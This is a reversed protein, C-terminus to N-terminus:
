GPWPMRASSDPRVWPAFSLSYTQIMSGSSPVVLKMWPRGIYQTDIAGHTRGSEDALIGHGPYAGLLTDIVAREAMQDVETVFDNPGKTNVKILDLDRSAQNIIGGAARAAKIATNLMPHLAQSM